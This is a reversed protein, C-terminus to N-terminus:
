AVNRQQSDRLQRLLYNLAEDMPQGGDVRHNSPAKDQQSTTGGAIAATHSSDSETSVDAVRIVDIRTETAFTPQRPM